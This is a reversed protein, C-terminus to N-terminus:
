RHVEEGTPHVGDATRDVGRLTLAMLISIRRDRNAFFTLNADRQSFLSYICALIM